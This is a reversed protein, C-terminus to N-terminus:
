VLLEDGGGERKVTGVEFRECGIGESLERFDSSEVDIEHGLEEFGFLDGEGCEVFICSGKSKRDHLVKNMKGSGLAFRPEVYFAGNAPACFSGLHKNAPDDCHYTSKETQELVVLWPKLACPGFALREGAM